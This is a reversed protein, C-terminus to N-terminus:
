AGVIMARIAQQSKILRIAEAQVDAMEVEGQKRDVKVEALFEILRDKLEILLAQSARSITRGSEKQRVDDIEKARYILDEVAALAMESEELFTMGDRLIGKTGVTRTMPNAPIAVPSWEKWDIDHIERKGYELRKVTPRIFGHSYQTIIGNKINSFTDRGDSTELNYQGIVHVENDKEFADLTKAVPRRTDHYALGVPAFGGGKFNSISKTFAGKVMTDGDLDENGYCSIVAHVIGKTEDEVASKGEYSKVYLM